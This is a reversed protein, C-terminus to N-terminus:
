TQAGETPKSPVKREMSSRELFFAMLVGIIFGALAFITFFMEIPRIKAVPASGGGAIDVMSVTVVSIEGSKLQKQAEEYLKTLNEFRARLLDFDKKKDLLTSYEKKGKEIETEVEAIRSNAYDVKDKHRKLLEKIKSDADEIISDKRQTLEAVKPHNPKYRKLLQDIELQADMYERKYSGLLDELSPDLYQTIVGATNKGSTFKTLKQLIQENEELILALEAKESTLRDASEQYTNLQQQPNQMDNEKIFNLLKNETEKLEKGLRNTKSLWEMADRSLSFRKEKHLELFSNALQSAMSAALQPNEAVATIRILNEGIPMVKIHKLFSEIPQKLDLIDSMRLHLKDIVDNIIEDSKIIEAQYSIYESVAATDQSFGNIVGTPQMAIEVAARYSPKVILSFALGMLCALVTPIIVINKRKKILELIEM